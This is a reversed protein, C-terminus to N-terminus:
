LFEDMLVTRKVANSFGQNFKFRISNANFAAKKEQPAATQAAEQAEATLKAKKVTPNVMSKQKSFMLLSLNCLLIANM